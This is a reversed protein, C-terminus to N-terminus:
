RGTKYKRGLFIIAAVAPIAGLVFKDQRIVGGMAMLGLVGIGLGLVAIIINAAEKV